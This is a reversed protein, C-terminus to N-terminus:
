WAQPSAPDIAISKQLWSKADDLKQLTLLAIGENTAAQALRPDKRFAQAFADAARETFQQGMLAVGRNNLRIAEADPRMQAGCTLTGMLIALMWPWITRMM